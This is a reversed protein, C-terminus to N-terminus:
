STRPWTASRRRAPSRGRGANGSLASAAARVNAMVADTVGVAGDGVVADGLPSEDMGMSGGVDKVTQGVNGFNFAAASQRRGEKISSRQQSGSKRKKGEAPGM